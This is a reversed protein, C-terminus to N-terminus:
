NKTVLITFPFVLLGLQPHDKFSTCIYNNKKRVSKANLIGICGGRRHDGTIRRLTERGEIYIYSLDSEFKIM